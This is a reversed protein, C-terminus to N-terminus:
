ELDLFQLQFILNKRNKIIYNEIELKSKGYEIPNLRNTEQIFKYEPIGYVM